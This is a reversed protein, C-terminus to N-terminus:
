QAIRKVNGPALLWKSGLMRVSKRWARINHAATKRSALPNLFLRRAQEIKTENM